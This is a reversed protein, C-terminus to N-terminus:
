KAAPLDFATRSLEVGSGDYAVVTVSQATGPTTPGYSTTEGVSGERIPEPWWALFAGDGLAAQVPGVPSLVVVRAVDPRVWGYTEAASADFQPYVERGVVEVAVAVDPGLESRHEVPGFGGGLRFWGDPGEPRVASSCDGVKNGDVYMSVAYGDRQEVLTAAVGPFDGDACAMDISAVTAAEGPSPAPASTLAVGAPTTGGEPQRDVLLGGGLVAAGLVAAGLLLPVARRRRAGRADHAVRQDMVLRVPRTIDRGDQALIAELAADPRVVAPDVNRDAPDLTRLAAAITDNRNM